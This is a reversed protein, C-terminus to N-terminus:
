WSKQVRFEVEVEATSLQEGTANSIFGSPYIYATGLLYTKGDGQSEKVRLRGRSNRRDNDDTEYWSTYTNSLAHVTHQFVANDCWPYM